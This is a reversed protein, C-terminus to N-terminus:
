LNAFLWHFAKKKITPKEQCHKINLHIWATLCIPICWFKIWFDDENYHFLRRGSYIPCINNLIQCHNTNRCPLSPVITGMWNCYPAGHFLRWIQLIAELGRLLKQRWTWCESRWNFINPKWMWWTKIRFDRWSLM